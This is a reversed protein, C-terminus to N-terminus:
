NWPRCKSFKNGCFESGLGKKGKLADMVWYHGETWITSIWFVTFFIGAQIYGLMGWLQNEIRFGVSGVNSKDMTYWLLAAIGVSASM